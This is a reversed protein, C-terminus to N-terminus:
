APLRLNRRAAAFAHSKRLSPRFREFLVNSPRQFRLLGAIAPRRTSAAAGHAAVAHIGDPAAQAVRGAPREAARARVDVAADRPDGRSRVRADAAVRVVAVNKVKGDTGITFELEVWGQQRKRAAQPRISRRCRACSARTARKVPRACRGRCAAAPAARRAVADAAPTPSPRPARRSRRRARAAPTPAPAAAAQAAAAAAAQQAAAEAAVQTSRAAPRGEAHRAQGQDHTVTYSNPSARDLLASSASPKSCTRRRSRASPSRARGAPLHRGAGADGPRQETGAGHRGLYYEIANNGPPPGHPGRRCRAVREQAARDVPMPAVQPAPAPAAGARAAAAPTAAAPAQEARGRRPPEDGGCAALAAGRASARPRHCRACRACPRVSRFPASCPTEGLSQVRAPRARMGRVRARMM